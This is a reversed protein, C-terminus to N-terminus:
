VDHSVLPPSSSRTCIYLGIPLLVGSLLFPPMWEGDSVVAMYIISAIMTVVALIKGRLPIVRYQYWDRVYPGLVRHQWLWLQFRASSRPFAWVAVILFVTTPLGPIIIGIVGLVIMAWGMTFYWWRVM